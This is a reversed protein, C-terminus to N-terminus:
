RLSALVAFDHLSPQRVAITPQKGPRHHRRRRHQTSRTAVRPTRLHRQSVVRRNSAIPQQCDAAAPISCGRAVARRCCLWRVSMTPFLVASPAQAAIADALEGVEPVGPLAGGLDGTTLVKTAGYEGLVGAVADADGGAYVAEVTDALERAKTLLELTTSTPKGDSAEAFVWIKPLTM